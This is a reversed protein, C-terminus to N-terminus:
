FLLQSLDVVIDAGSALGYGVAVLGAKELRSIRAEHDDLTGDIEQQRYTPEYSAAEDNVGM